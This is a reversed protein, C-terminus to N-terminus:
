RVTLTGTMTTPHVDCRFFYSGADLPKIKYIETAPGAFVKGKFLDDTASASTYISVNHLVGTDDNRFRLSFAQGAPGTLTTTAFLSNKAEIRVVTGTPEAVPEAASPTLGLSPKLVMLYLIFGLGIFGIWTITFPRRNRLVSDFQEPTVAQSGEAVARTIFRVKQYYPRAMFYMALTVFVLTALAAWIWGFGWWHRQFGAVIGGALLVAMSIYLPMVTRGSADLLANIRNPDRETRLRLATAISVGHVILFGFAGAIHLFVWWEYM